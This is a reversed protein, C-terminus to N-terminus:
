RIVSERKHEPARKYVAKRADEVAKMLFDTQEEHQEEGRVVLSSWEPLGRRAHIYTEINYPAQDSERQFSGPLSKEDSVLDGVTWAVIRPFLTIIRAPNQLHM